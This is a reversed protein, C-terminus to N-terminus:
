IRIADFSQAFQGDIATEANQTMTTNLPKSKSRPAALPWM